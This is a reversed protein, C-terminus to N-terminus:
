DEFKPLKKHKDQVIICEESRQNNNTVVTNRVYFLSQVGSNWQGIVMEWARNRAFGDQRVHWVRGAQLVRSASGHWVDPQLCFLFVYHNFARATKM